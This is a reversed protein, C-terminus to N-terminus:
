ISQGDRECATRKVLQQDRIPDLLVVMGHNAAINIMRDAREFYTENPDSLDGVTLFPPIGDVTTGDKNCGDSSNCLLNIWLTNIGYSLRNTMFSEANRESLNAILTQPADGVMLFPVNRQDVLFRNNSSVKLPYTPAAPLRGSPAPFGEAAIDNDAAANARM